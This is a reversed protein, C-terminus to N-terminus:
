VNQNFIRVLTGVQNTQATFWETGGGLTCRYNHLAGQAARESVDMNNVQVCRWFSLPRPNGTQLDSIRKNPNVTQGVKFNQPDALPNTERILYVYGPGSAAVGDETQSPEPFVPLKEVEEATLSKFEETVEKVAMKLVRLLSCNM